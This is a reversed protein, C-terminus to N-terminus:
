KPGLSSSSGMAGDFVVQNLEKNKIQLYRGKLVPLYEYGNLYFSKKNVLKRPIGNFSVLPTDGIMGQFEIQGLTVDSFKVSKKVSSPAQNEKYGRDGMEKKIMEYIEAYEETKEKREVEAKEKIDSDSMLPNYDSAIACASFLNLLAIFFLRLLM